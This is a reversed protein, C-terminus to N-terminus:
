SQRIEFSVHKFYFSLLFVQFSNTNKHHQVPDAWLQQVKWHSLLQPSYSLSCSFVSSNVLWARQFKGGARGFFGLFSFSFLVNVHPGLEESDPDGFRLPTPSFSRNPKLLILGPCWKAQLHQAVIWSTQSHVSPFPWCSFSSIFVVQEGLSQLLLKRETM